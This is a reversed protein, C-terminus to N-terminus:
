LFSMLTSQEIEAGAKLLLGVEVTFAKLEVAVENEGRIKAWIKEPPPM